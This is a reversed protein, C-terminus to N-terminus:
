QPSNKEEERAAFREWLSAVELLIQRRVPDEIAAAKSRAAAARQRFYKARDKQPDM